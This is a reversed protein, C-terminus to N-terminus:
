KFRIQLNLNIFPIDNDLYIKGFGHRGSSPTDFKTNNFLYEQFENRNYIHYCLVEGDEKVVIYGGTADYIGGWPKQPTMGLAVDTLFNKIKYEYFPQDNSLDFNLPNLKTLHKTLDVVANAVGSYFFKLMEAIMTPLASDIIILNNFLQKSDIKTFILSCNNKELEVVRNKIKRDGEISNIFDIKSNLIKKSCDLRYIFNTQGSANFLTSSSGLKSKISFGLRPTYGTFIDHVVLTIDRKDSSKAKIKSVKIKKLFGQIDNFEFTRGKTNKIKDLLLLSNEKFEEVPIALIVKGELDVIKIKSNIHYQYEERFISLIPYYIEKIKNLDKDAAYLKKDALLKLFVYLESWEGRNSGAM